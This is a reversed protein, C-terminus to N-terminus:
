QNTATNEYSSNEGSGFAPNQTLNHNVKLEDLNYPWFIAEMRTLKSSVIGANKLGKNGLQTRLYQTNGDRLSRRVLDYWRKGEFLLERHREEMVLEEMKDKTNYDAFKLQDNATIKDAAKMINRRNVVNVLNFAEEVKADADDAAMQVLAEAKMLMIDTLRYIIWNAHNKDKTWTGAVSRKVTTGSTEWISTSMVYKGIMSSTSTTTLANFSWHGRADLTNRFFKFVNNSVDLGIYDSPQVRNYFGGNDPNGYYTSVASNALMNDNRMYTLEFISEDSNGTGFIENYSNGFFDAENTWERILPYGDFYTNMDSMLTGEQDRAEQQKAAIIMDAYDICKQYDQKWLYMECLMAHIADQTIRGTQYLKKDGDSPYKRVADYQVTELDTILSDLVENFPTAPLDMKQDDDTFATTSYPVDRFTRILYFYCLDRLASLEAITAKLEGETFSPDVAAVKPAKQIATNCRNIVTYFSSWNTYTNQADINENILKYMHLDDREAYQGVKVNESRFEGWAMMRTVVSYSQLGEYCGAVVNDVDTKENWFQEEIVLERPEIDLFDGCSSLGCMAGIACIIKYYNKKMIKM